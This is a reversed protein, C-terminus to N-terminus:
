SEETNVSGTLTAESNKVDEERVKIDAIEVDDGATFLFAKVKDPLMKILDKSYPINIGDAGKVSNWSILMFKLFNDVLLDPDEVMVGNKKIKSKERIERKKAGDVRRIIFQSGGFEVTHREEPSILVVAM